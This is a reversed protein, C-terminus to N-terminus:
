DAGARAAKAPEDAQSSEDLGRKNPAPTPPVTPMKLVAAPSKAAEDRAAAARAKANIKAIAKAKAREIADHRLERHWDRISAVLQNYVKDQYILRYGKANPHMTGREDGQVDWVSRGLTNFWADACNCLGNNKSTEFVDVLDWGYKEAAAKVAKNLPIFM